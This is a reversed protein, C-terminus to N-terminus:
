RKGRVSEKLTTGHQRVGYMFELDALKLSNLKLLSDVFRNNSLRYKKTKRRDKADYRAEVRQWMLKCIYAIQKLPHKLKQFLVPRRKRVKVNLPMCQLGLTKRFRRWEPSYSSKCRVLLHFHPMWRQYESQYDVEFFGIVIDKVGARDLQKRLRDKLRVIDQRKLERAMEDYYIFTAIRWETYDECFLTLQSIKKVRLSRICEPCALSYCPEDEDCDSLKEALLRASNLSSTSLTKVRVKKENWCAELTEFKPLLSEVDIFESIRANMFKNM